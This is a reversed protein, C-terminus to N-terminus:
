PPQRSCNWTTMVALLPYSLVFTVVGGSGDAGQPPPLVELLTILVDLMTVELKTVVVELMTVEVEVLELTTVEVGELLELTTVELLTLEDEVEETGVEVEVETKVEDTEDVDLLGVEVEVEVELLGVVVEVEMLVEVVVDEQFDVGVGEEGATGECGQPGPWFQWPRGIFAGPQDIPEM